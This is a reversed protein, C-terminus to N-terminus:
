CGSIALGYIVRHATAVSFYYGDKENMLVSDKHLHEARWDDFHVRSYSCPVQKCDDGYSYGYKTTRITSFKRGNKCLGLQELIRELQKAQPYNRGDQLGEDLLLYKGNALTLRIAKENEGMDNRHVTVSKIFNGIVALRQIYINM